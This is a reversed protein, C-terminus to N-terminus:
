ASMGGSPGDHLGADDSPREEMGAGNRTGVGPRGALEQGDGTEVDQGEDLGAGNYTFVGDSPVKPLGAGHVPAKDLESGDNAGVSPGEALGPGNCMGVSLGEDLETSDEIRDGTGVCPGEAM